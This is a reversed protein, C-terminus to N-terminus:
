QQSYYRLQKQQLQYYRQQQQQQQCYQQQWQQREQEAEAATDLVQRKYM